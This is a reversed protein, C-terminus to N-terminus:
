FLALSEFSWEFDTALIDSLEGIRLCIITASVFQKVCDSRISSVTMAVNM